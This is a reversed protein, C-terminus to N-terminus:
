PISENQVEEKIEEFEQHSILFDTQNVRSQDFIPDNFYDEIEFMTADNGWALMDQNEVTLGWVDGHLISIKLYQKRGEAWARHKTKLYGAAPLLIRM